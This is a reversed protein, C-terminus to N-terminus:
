ITMMLPFIHYGDVFSPKVAVDNLSAFSSWGADSNAFKCFFDLAASDGPPVRLYNSDGSFKTPVTSGEFCTSLWRRILQAM